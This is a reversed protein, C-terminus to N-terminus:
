ASEMMHEQSLLFAEQCAACFKTWKKMKITRRFAFLLLTAAPVSIISNCTGLSQCVQSYHKGAHNSNIPVPKVFSAISPLPASPASLPTSVSIGKGGFWFSHAFLLGLVFGAAVSILNSGKINLKAM